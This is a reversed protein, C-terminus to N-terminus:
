DKRYPDARGKLRRIAQPHPIFYHGSPIYRSPLLVLKVHLEASTKGLAKISFSPSVRARRERDRELSPGHLHSPVKKQGIACEALQTTIYLSSHLQKCCGLEYIGSQPM